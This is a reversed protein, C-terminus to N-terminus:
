HASLVSPRVSPIFSPLFFPVSRGGMSAAVSTHSAAFSALSQSRHHSATTAMSARPRRLASDLEPTHQVESGMIRLIKAMRESTARRHSYRVHERSGSGSGSGSGALSGDWVPSLAKQQASLKSWREVYDCYWLFFQLPEAEHEVYVLYDMFDNLSCPQLATDTLRLSRIVRGTPLRRTRTRTPFGVRSSKNRVINKFTVDAPVTSEFRKACAENAAMDLPCLATPEKHGPPQVPLVAM